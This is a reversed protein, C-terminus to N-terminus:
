FVQERFAYEKTGLSALTDLKPESTLVLDPWSAEM